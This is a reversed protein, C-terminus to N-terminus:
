QYTHYQDQVLWFNLNNNNLNEIEVIYLIGLGEIQRLEDPIVYAIIHDYASGPFDMNLKLDYLQRIHEPNDASIRIQKEGARWGGDGLMQANVSSCILLSSIFLLLLTFTKKM